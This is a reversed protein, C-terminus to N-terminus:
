DFLIIVMVCNKLMKEMKKLMKEMKELFTTSFDSFTNIDLTKEISYAVCTGDYIIIEIKEHYQGLGQHSKPIEHM